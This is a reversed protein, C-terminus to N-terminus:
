GSGPTRKDSYQSAFKFQTKEKKRRSIKSYQERLTPGAPRRDYDESLLNGHFQRSGVNVSVMAWGLTAQSDSQLFLPNFSSRWPRVFLHESTQAFLMFPPM